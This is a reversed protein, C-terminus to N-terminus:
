ARRIKWTFTGAAEQKELLQDGSEACLYSISEGSSPNDFIVTLEDGASLKKLAKETFVQVHPCVYGLVNLQFQGDALKEFKVTDKKLKFM